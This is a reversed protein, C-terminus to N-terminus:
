GQPYPYASPRWGILVNSWQYDDPIFTSFYVEDYYSESFFYGINLKSVGKNSSASVWAGVDPDPSVMVDRQQSGPYDEEAIPEPMVIDEDPMVEVHQAQELTLITEHVTMVEYTIKGDDTWHVDYEAVAPTYTLRYQEGTESNILYVDGEHNTMPVAFSTVYEEQLILLFWGDDANWIPNFHAYYGGGEVSFYHGTEINLVELFNITGGMIWHFSEFTLYTKTPSWRMTQIGSPNAENGNTTRYLEQHSEDAINYLWLAGNTDGNAAYAIRTSDSSFVAEWVDCSIPEEYVWALKDVDYLNLCPSDNADHIRALLYRGDPSWAFHDQETVEIPLETAAGTYGNLLVLHNEDRYLFQPAPEDQAAAPLSLLLCLILLM